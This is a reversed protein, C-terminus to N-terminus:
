RPPLRRDAPFAPPPPPPPPPVCRWGRGQYPQRLDASHSSYAILPPFALSRDAGGPESAPPLAVLHRRRAAAGRPPPSASDNAANSCPSSVATEPPM